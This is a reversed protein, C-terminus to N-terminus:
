CSFSGENEVVKGQLMQTKRKNKSTLRNVLFFVGCMSMCMAPCAAFSLFAPVTATITPNHTVTFALYAITAIGLAASSLVVIKKKTIRAKIGCAMSMNKRPTIRYNVYIYM